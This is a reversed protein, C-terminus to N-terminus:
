RLGPPRRPTRKPHKAIRAALAQAATRKGHHWSCLTRLNDLNHNDRDGIHDCELATTAQCRTGDPETWTCQHGDRRLVQARITKWNGPRPSARRGDPM